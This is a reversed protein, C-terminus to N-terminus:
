VVGINCNHIFKPLHRCIFSNVNEHWKIRHYRWLIVSKKKAKNQRVFAFPLQIWVFWMKFKWIFSNIIKVFLTPIQGVVIFLTSDVNHISLFHKNSALRFYAVSTCNIRRYFDNSWIVVWVVINVAPFFVHNQAALQLLYTSFYM